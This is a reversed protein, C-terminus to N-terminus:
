FTRQAVAAHRRDKNNRVIRKDIIDTIERTGVQVHVDINPEADSQGIGADAGVGAFSPGAISGSVAGPVNLSALSANAGATAMQGLKEASAYVASQQSDMGIVLSNGFNQGADVAVKSPSGSVMGANVGAKAAQGLAVGANYVAQQQQIMGNALSIGFNQGIADFVEYLAELYDLLSNMIDVIISIADQFTSIMANLMNLWADYMAQTAAQVIATCNDMATRVATEIAPFDAQVAALLEALKDIVSQLGVSAFNTLATNLNTLNTGAALLQVNLNTWNTVMPLLQANLNTLNTVMPLLQANINTLNTVAPLLQVNLNTWNTVMPLLQANLNTLNTVMPLLQANLNTLNTVMPLLQANITTLSTALPTLQANLNTAGTVLPLLQANVNTLNTVMPLLQTNVNTLSTVIPLLQANANTLNTVLPLLQANATTLNTVMPLLQANANTLNTVLPLLQGNAGTLSTNLATVQTQLTTILGTLATLNASATATDATVPISVPTAAGQQQVAKLAPDVAATNPVVPPPLPTGAAGTVLLKLAPDVPAGNPTVPPALPAGLAQGQATKLAPDVPAGNPVVPPVLPTGAVKSQADAMAQPVKSTDALVTITKGNPLKVVETALGSTKAAATSADIATQGYQAILGELATRTPGSANSALQGLTQLYANSQANTQDLPSLGKTLADTQRAAAGAATDIAQGLGVQAQRAELSNKGHDKIAQNLTKQAAEVGLLSGQYGLTSSVLSQFASLQDKAAQNLAKTAAEAAKQGDTLNKQADTLVKSAAAAQASDPGFQAVAQNLTLQAQQLTQQAPALATVSAQMAALAAQAQTSQPGFAAVASTYAAQAQAVADTAASVKPLSVATEDSKGRFFDIADSVGSLVSKLREVPIVANLVASGIAQLWGPAAQFVQGAGGTINALAQLAGSLVNFADALAPGFSVAMQAGLDVLPPIVKMLGGFAQILGDVAKQVTGTKEMRAITSAWLNGTDQMVKGLGSLGKAGDNALKLVNETATAIPAALGAIITNIQAFLSGIQQLGPGSALFATVNTAILSLATATSSLATTLTPMLALANTIAPQLGQTFAASVAAQVTAFVPALQAVAAKLGDMGVIIAAIPVGILAIAAPLAAVAAAILPFAAGAAAAMLKINGSMGGISTGASDAGKGILGLSTVAGSSDVDVKIETKKRELELLKTQLQLLRAEGAAIDLTVKPSATKKALGDLSLKVKDIDAQTKATDAIIKIAKSDVIADVSLKVKSLDAVAKATDADVKTDVKDPVSAIAAKAVQVGRQLGAVDAGINVDKSAKDIVAELKEIERVAARTAADVQIALRSSRTSGAV